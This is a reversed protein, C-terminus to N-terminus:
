FAASIWEEAANLTGVTALYTDGAGYINWGRLRIGPIGPDRQDVRRYVWFSEDRTCYNGCSTRELEVKPLSVSLSVGTPMGVYKKTLVVLKRDALSHVARRVQRDSMGLREALQVVALANSAAALEALIRRQARGIGTSMVLHGLPYGAHDGDPVCAGEGLIVRCRQITVM